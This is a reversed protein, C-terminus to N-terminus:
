PDLFSIGQTANGLTEVDVWFDGRSDTEMFAQTEFPVPWSNRIQIECHGNRMRKGIALMTHGRLSFGTTTKDFRDYDMGIMIPTARPRDLLQTLKNALLTPSFLIVNTNCDPLFSLDIRNEPRACDKFYRGQILKKPTLELTRRLAPSVTATQYNGFVPMLEEHTSAPRPTAPPINCVECADGLIEQLIRYSEKLNGQSASLAQQLEILRNTERLISAASKGREAFEQICAGHKKVFRVVDCSFGGWPNNLPNGKSKYLLSSIGTESFTNEVYLEVAAAIPSIVPHEPNQFSRYADVMQTATYAFCLTTEDQSQHALAAM